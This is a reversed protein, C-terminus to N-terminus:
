EKPWNATLEAVTKKVEEREREIERATDNWLQIDICSRIADDIIDQLVPPELADLEVVANGYREVFAPTRADTQKAPAPPLNYKDIQIPVLAIRRVDVWEAGYDHIRREIDRPIDTGSPDHDGLQLITGEKDDHESFRDVAAKVFSYSPYGRCVCTRVRYKRAVDAVLRSLADKEVWVEIYEEQNEWIPRAYENWCDRFNRKISQLYEEPNNAGYDGGITSRARDEIRSDDVLGKERAKVLIRSLSKYTNLNNEILNRAVLRYYIQRLTMATDYQRLVGNVADIIADKNTM